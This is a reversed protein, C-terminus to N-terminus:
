RLYPLPNVPQGGERLEFGIRPDEDGARGLPYGAGVTQGITVSTEGLGTVLSSWGNDHELIVITDYGRYPGAFAVRGGAPSVIVARARPVIDIGTSRADGAGVEGFGTVVQGAAPLQISPPRGETKAAPASRAAPASAAPRAAASYSPLLVPGPLAALRTRLASDASFAGLLADLDRSEEALALARNNERAANGGSRRAAIRQTEALALLDRRRAAMEGQAERLAALLRTRQKRLAAARLMDGRLAATRARIEPVAGALVARTHVIDGLSGPQLLSLTVPRSAMTQLAGTLQLLPARRQRLQRELATRQRDILAIEAQAAAIGAESQQVRAATAAAQRMAKDAARESQRTQAELREARQQAARQQQRATELAGRLMAPQAVESRPVAVARAGLSLCALGAFAAAVFAFTVRSSTVARKHRM